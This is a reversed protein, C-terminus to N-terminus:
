LLYQFQDEKKTLCQNYDSVLAVGREAADNVVKMQKFYEENERYSEDSTWMEIDVELFDYTLDFM